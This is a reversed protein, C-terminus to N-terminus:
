PPPNGKLAFVIRATTSSVNLLFSAVGTPGAVDMLGDTVYLGGGNGSTTNASEWAKGGEDEPTEPNWNITNNQLFGNINPAANDRSDGLVYVVLENDATTTVSPMDGGVAAAATNGDFVDIPNGSSICDDYTVIRALHFSNGGSELANPITVAPMADSTARGWFATLKIGTLSHAAGISVEHITTWIGGPDTPNNSSENCSVVLLCGIQGAVHGVPWNVVVDTGGLASNAAGYAALVPITAEAPPEEEDVERPAGVGGVRFRDGAARFRFGDPAEFTGDRGLEGRGVGAARFYTSADRFGAPLRM